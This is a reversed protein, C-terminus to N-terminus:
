EAKHKIKRRMWLLIFLALGFCSYVLIDRRRAKAKELETAENVRLAEEEELSTETEKDRSLDSSSQFSSSNPNASGYIVTSPALIFLSSIFLVLFLSLSSHKM